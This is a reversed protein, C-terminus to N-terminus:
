GLLGSLAVIWRCVEYLDWILVTQVSEVMLSQFPAPVSERDAVIEKTRHCYEVCVEELGMSLTQTSM